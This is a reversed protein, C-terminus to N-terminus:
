HGRIMLLDTEKSMEIANTMVQRKDKRDMFQMKLQNPSSIVCVM